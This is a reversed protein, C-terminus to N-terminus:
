AHLVALSAQRDISGALLSIPTPICGPMTSERVIAFAGRADVKGIRVWLDTHNSSNDICVEGQPADFKSGLVM